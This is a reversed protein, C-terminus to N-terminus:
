ILKLGLKLSSRKSAKQKRRQSAQRSKVLLKKLRHYFTLIRHGVNEEMSHRVLEKAEKLGLGTIARVEKIVKLKSGSEFKELKVDFSTKEEEEPASEEAGGPGGMMPQGAYPSFM